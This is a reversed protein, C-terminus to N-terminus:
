VKSPTQNASEGDYVLRTCTLCDGFPVACTRINAEAYLLIVTFDSLYALMASLLSMCNSANTSRVDPPQSSLAFRTSRLSM